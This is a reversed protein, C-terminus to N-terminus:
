SGFLWAVWPWWNLIGGSPSETPTPPPSSPTPSPSSPTPSPKPSTTTPGPSPKKTKSASPSPSPSPSPSASRSYKRDWQRWVPPTTPRPFDKIPLGAHAAKMFTAWIITSWEGGWAVRGHILGMPTNEKAYGMWVATALQPTYGCFWADAHNDTTGTKGAAPRGIFGNPYATGGTIVGKLAQTVWYAVGDSIVRKSKVKAKYYETGDPLVIRLIAQPKRYIGGSALTAYASATELTTVDNTGLVASLVPALDSTFGMRHMMEILNQPGVDAALQAYVANVSYATAKMLDIRGFGEGRVPYSGYGPLSVTVNEDKYFTKRPDAGQEIAATLAFTKAASGLQNGGQWAVNFKQKEANRGGVMARIYGTKPDIAVLAAIPDSADPLARMVANTAATQWKLDLSTYVKLGGQYVTNAGLTNILHQTVYDVFYGSSKQKAAPPKKFVEIPLATAEAYEVQTILNQSLMSSLVLDRRKKAIDPQNIPDYYSPANAIGALLAAEPLTLAKATKHFYTQAAAQVGYSSAGYYITNLYATLIEDKSWRDELQWALVMERIKRSFTREQSIYANRIFQQTISSAGQVLSGAKIDVLVARVLGEIDVGHHEYFREDEIAVTAKKMVEAIDKSDVNVRNEAGHLSAIMKGNRDYIFSTLATDHRTLEDLSPLNRAVAFVAGVTAAVIGTLLLAGVILVIRLWRLFVRRRGAHQSSRRRRGGPPLEELKLRRRTREDM